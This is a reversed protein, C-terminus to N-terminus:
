QMTSNLLNNKMGIIDIVQLHMWPGTGVAAQYATAMQAACGRHRHCEWQGAHLWGM